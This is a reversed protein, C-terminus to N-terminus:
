IGPSLVQELTSAAEAAERVAQLIYKNDSDLGAKVTYLVLYNKNISDPNDEIMISWSGMIRTQMNDLLLVRSLSDLEEESIILSVSFIERIAVSGSHNLQGRIWVDKLISVGDALIRFDGENDMIYNLNEDHFFDELSKSNKLPGATCSVFFLLLCLYNLKRLIGKM